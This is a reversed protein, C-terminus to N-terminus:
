AHFRLGCYDLLATEIAPAVAIVMPALVVGAAMLSISCRQTIPLAQRTDLLRSVRQVACAGNVALSGAPRHGQALAVLAAALERRDGRITARDDAHMEVLTAIETEALVFFQIRPMARRLVTAMILALDHRGALHAREHALAVERQRDSLLAVAATTMVIDPRRGPICFVAPRHDEVVRVDADCGERGVLAIRQRQRQRDRRIAILQTVLVHSIRIALAAAGAIGFLHVLAGGPTEYHQRLMFECAGLLGALDGSATSFYPLALAVGALLVSVPVALTATQWAVVGLRPSRRTWSAAPLTRGAVLILLGAFAVLCIAAIM